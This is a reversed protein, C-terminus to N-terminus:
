TSSGTRRIRNQANEFATRIQAKGKDRNQGGIVIFIIGPIIGILFGLCILASDHGVEIRYYMNEGQATM